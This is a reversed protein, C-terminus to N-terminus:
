KAAETLFFSEWSYGSFDLFKFLFLEKQQRVQYLKRREHDSANFLEFKYVLRGYILLRDTVWLTHKNISHTLNKKRQMIRYSHVSTAKDCILWEM